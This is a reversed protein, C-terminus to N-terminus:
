SHIELGSDNVAAPAFRKPQRTPACCAYGSSQLLCIRTAYNRPDVDSGVFDSPATWIEAREPKSRFVVVKGFDKLPLTQPDFESVEPSRDLSKLSVARIVMPNGDLSGNRHSPSMLGPFRRYVLRLILAHSNGVM